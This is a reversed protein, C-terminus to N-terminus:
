YKWSILGKAGGELSQIGFSVKREMLTKYLPHNKPYKGAIRTGESALFSLLVGGIVDSVYHKRDHVRQYAVVYTGVAPLIAPLIGYFQFTKFTLTALGIVHGSPWSSDGRFETELSSLDRSEPRRHIQIRSLLSTEVQALGSAAFLELAFQRLKQDNRSSAIWYAGFSVLPTNFINAIDNGFTQVFGSPREGLSRMIKGDTNFIPWLVAASLGIAVWSPPETFQMWGADFSWKISQWYDKFFSFEESKLDPSRASEAASLTTTTCLCTLVLLSVLIKKM